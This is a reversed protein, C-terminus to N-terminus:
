MLVIGDVPTLICQRRPEVSDMLRIYVREERPFSNRLLPEFGSLSTARQLACARSM